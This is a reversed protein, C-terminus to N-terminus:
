RVGMTANMNIFKAAMDNLDKNANAARKLNNFQIDMAFKRAERRREANKVAQNTAIKRAERHRETNYSKNAAVVAKTAVSPEKKPLQKSMNQSVIKKGADFIKKDAGTKHLVYATAATALVGAAIKAGRKINDSRQRDKEAPKDQPIDVHGQKSTKKSYRREGAPTYSGDANQYRRVGWKLGLIGHHELYLDDHSLTKECVDRGRDTSPNLKIEMATLGGWYADNSASTLQKVVKAGQKEYIHRADPSHGPVELTFTDNGSEKAYDLVNKMIASAYGRGRYKKDVGLWVGNLEKKGKQYLEVDGVKKGNVIVKFNSNKAIEKKFNPNVKAITRAIAAPYQRRLEITDGNKATFTTHGKMHDNLMGDYRKKGAETLTGDANQFRRVGWRQGLIGHHELYLDDHELENMEYTWDDYLEASKDGYTFKKGAQGKNGTVKIVGVKELKVPECIWLEDTISSDPVAKANPKFVKHKSIDVPKYVNFTKGEVNKSLGALCKDVSPAFSIRSTSNDEYGHETFYNNPIRPNLESLSENDSIFYAPGSYGKLFKTNPPTKQSSYRKKGESTLSGDANQYRRVGWKMGLIGHHELYGDAM